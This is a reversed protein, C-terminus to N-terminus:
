IRNDWNKLVVEQHNRRIAQYIEAPERSDNLTFQAVDRDALVAYGGPTVRSGASMNDAATQVIADRFAPDERTSVTMGCEPFVIRFALMMLELDNEDVPHEPTFGGSVPTIRPFAFQIRSQWCEKMLYFAHAALSAAEIRWPALGLLFAVGLTRFGARGARLQTWLRYEYVSKPGAPHLYQYLDKEYTEQFCILSEFGADFLRRYADKDQPAVELSLCSFRDKLRRGIECLYDVTMHKPDEGAVILLSDIGNKRIAACELDIEEPTLIKREAHHHINFDCYRCSNVCTNSIYLPAFISVTKGYYRRRARMSAERLAPRYEPRAAEPSVLNLLDFFSGHEASLSARVMDPTVRAYYDRIQAETFKLKPFM